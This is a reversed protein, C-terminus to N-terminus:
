TVKSPHGRGTPRAAGLMDPSVGPALRADAYAAPGHAGLGDAVTAVIAAGTREPQVGGGVAVDGPDPHGASAEGRRLQQREAVERVRVAVAGQM